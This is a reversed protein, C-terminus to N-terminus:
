LTSMYVYHIFRLFFFLFTVKLRLSLLEASVSQPSRPLCSSNKFSSARQPQIEWPHFQLAVTPIKWQSPHVSTVSTTLQKGELQQSRLRKERREQWLNQPDACGLFSAHLDCLKTHKSAHAHHTLGWEPALKETFESLVSCILHVGPWARLQSGESRM